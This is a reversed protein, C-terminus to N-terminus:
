WYHCSGNSINSWDVIKHISPNIVRIKPTTALRFNLPNPAAASNRPIIITM